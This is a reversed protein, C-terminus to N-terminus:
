GQDEGGGGPGGGGGVLVDIGLREGIRVSAGSAGFQQGAESWCVTM